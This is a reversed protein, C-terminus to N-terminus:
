NSYEIYVMGSSGKGGQYARNNLFIGGGGGAGIGSGAKGEGSTSISGGLGGQSSIKDIAGLLPFIQNTLSAGEGGAEKKGDEGNVTNKLTTSENDGKGGGTGNNFIGPNGGFGGKATLVVKGDIEIVTDGGSEGKEGMLGSWNLSTGQKPTGGKGVTMKVKSVGGSVWIDNKVVVQGSQGGGGSGEGWELYVYGNGGNGGLGATNNTFTSNGGGGGGGTGYATNDPAHGSSNNSGGNGGELLTNEISYTQGGNGGTFNNDSIIGGNTGTGLASLENLKEPEFISFGTWNKWPKQTSYGAGAGGNSSTESYNGGAGGFLTIVSGSKSGSIITNGGNAGNASRAGGGNGGKGITITLTEGPTVDIEGVWFQGAGGGGGANTKRIYNCKLLNKTNTWSIKMYGNRGYGNTTSTNGGRCYNPMGEIPSLGGVATTSITYTILGDNGGTGGKGALNGDGYLGGGGAGGGKGGGGGGPATGFGRYSGSACTDYTKAGGGGGPAVLFFKSDASNGYRGFFTAGGGGGGGGANFAGGGGGGGELSGWGATAYCSSPGSTESAYGSGASGGGSSGSANTANILQSLYDPNCQFPVWAGNGGTANGKAIHLLYTDTSEAGGGGGGYGTADASDGGNITSGMGGGGGITVYVKSVSKDLQFTKDVKGGSGGAGAAFSCATSSWNKAGGGGGGCALVNIYANGPIMETKNDSTLTWNTIGSNKCDTNIAPIKANAPVTWIQNAGTTTFTSNGSAPLTGYAIGAGDGGAAGGGGGAIGYVRMKTVGEPVVFKQATSSYTFKKYGYTASGGAGGGGVATIKLINVGTPVAWEEDKFFSRGYDARQYGSGSISLKEEGMRRTMVPALAALLLSAVLLAMLMEVLSFGQMALNRPLIQGSCSKKM